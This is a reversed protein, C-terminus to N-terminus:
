DKKGDKKDDSKKETAKNYTNTTADLIKEFIGGVKGATADLKSEKKDDGSIKIVDCFKLIAIVIGGLCYIDILGVIPGLVCNLVVGATGIQSFLMSSLFGFCGGLITSIGVYIVLLIVFPKVNGKQMKFSSSYLKKLFSM